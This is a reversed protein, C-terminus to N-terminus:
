GVSLGGLGSAHLSDPGRENLEWLMEGAWTFLAHVWVVMAFSFSIYGHCPHENSSHLKVEKIPTGWPQKSLTCNGTARTNKMSILMCNTFSSCAERHSYLHTVNLAIVTQIDRLQSKKSTSLIQPIILKSHSTHAHTNLNNTRTQKYQCSHPVKHPHNPTHTHQAKHDFDTQHTHASSQSPPKTHKYQVIGLRICVYVTCTFNPSLPKTSWTNQAKHDLQTM